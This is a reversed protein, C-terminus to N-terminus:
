WLSPWGWSLLAPPLIIDNFFEQSVMPFRFRSRVAKLATGWGVAGGHAYIKVRYELRILYHLRWHLCIQSNFIRTYNWSGAYKPGWLWKWHFLVSSIPFDRISIFEDSELIIFLWLVDRHLSVLLVPFFRRRMYILSSIQKTLGFTKFIASIIWENM